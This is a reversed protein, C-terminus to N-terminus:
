GCNERRKRDSEMGLVRRYQEATLVATAKAAAETAAEAAHPQHLKGRLIHNIELFTTM